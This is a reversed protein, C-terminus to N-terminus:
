HGVLAPTVNLGLSWRNDDTSRTLDLRMLPCDTDALPRDLWTEM